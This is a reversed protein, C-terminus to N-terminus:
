DRAQVEAGSGLAKGSEIPSELRLLCPERALTRRRNPRRGLDAGVVCVVRGFGEVCFWLFAAGGGPDFTALLDGRRGAKPLGHVEKPSIMQANAAVSEGVGTRQAILQVQPTPAVSDAM